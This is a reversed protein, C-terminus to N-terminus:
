FLRVLANTPTACARKSRSLLCEQLLQYPYQSILLRSLVSIIPAFVLTTHSLEIM